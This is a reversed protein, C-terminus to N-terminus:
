PQEGEVLVAMAEDRRLSLNYDRVAIEVPDGMPATRMVQFITSPTLGMSILKQRYRSFGKKFGAIKGRSGAPLDALTSKIKM